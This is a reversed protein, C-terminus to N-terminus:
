KNIASYLQERLENRKQDNQMVRQVSENYQATAGSYANQAKELVIEATKINEKLQIQMILENSSQKELQQLEQAISMEQPARPIRAFFIAITLFILIIVAGGIKYETHINNWINKANM